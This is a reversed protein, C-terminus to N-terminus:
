RGLGLLHKFRHQHNVHIPPFLVPRIRPSVISLCDHRITSDTILLQRGHRVLSPQQQQEAGEAVSCRDRMLLIVGTAM